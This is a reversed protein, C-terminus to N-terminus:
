KKTATKAAVPAPQEQVPAPEEVPAPEQVPEPTPEPAPAEPVPVPETAPAEPVPVSEPAIVVQAAVEKYGLISRLRNWSGFVRKINQFRIPADTAEKYENMEMFGGKSDFYAKLDEIIVTKKTM